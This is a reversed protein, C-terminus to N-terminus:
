GQDADNGRKQMAATNLAARRLEEELKRKGPERYFGADAQTDVKKVEKAPPFSSMAEGAKDRPIENLQAFVSVLAPVISGETLDAVNSETM